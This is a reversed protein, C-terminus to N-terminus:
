KKLHFTSFSSAAILLQAEAPDVPVLETAGGSPGAVPTVTRFYYSKGVEATFSAAAVSSKIERQIIAQVNTCLRHDGPDVSFFFYSRYGNAGVWTGDIGFRTPPNGIHIPVHDGWTDGIVYVLAKGPEPEATPHQKKDTKVEFHVDNPGCGAAQMANAALDQALVPSAFLILLLATRLM